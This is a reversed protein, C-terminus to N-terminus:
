VTIRPFSTATIELRNPKRLRVKTKTAKFNNNRENNFKISYSFIIKVQREVIDADPSFIWKKAANESVTRFFIHGSEAKADTVRGEKNIKVSVVIESNTGTAEAAPPYRPAEYRIVKPQKGHAWVPVWLLASIFLLLTLKM